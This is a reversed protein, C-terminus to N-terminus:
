LGSDHAPPNNDCVFLYKHYDSHLLIPFSSCLLLTNVRYFPFPLIFLSSFGSIRNITSVATRKTTPLIPTKIQCSCFPIRTAPLINIEISIM